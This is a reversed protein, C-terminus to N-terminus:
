ITIVNEFSMDIDTNPMWIKPIIIKKDDTDNLYSAWWSFSSNCIIGGKCLTMFYFTEIEDLDELFMFKVENKFKEFVQYTKCYEIDNSFVYFKNIKLDNTSLFKQIAKTYYSNYDIEYLKNGVYDGRRIHIFFFKNIDKYKEKISERINENLFVERLEEKIVNFYKLNQFYGDLFVDKLKPPPLIIKKYSDNFNKDPKILDYNFDFKNISLKNFKNFVSSLIKKINSHPYINKENKNDMFILIPLSNNIKCYNLGAAVQFLQNGLGGHLKIFTYKGEHTKEDETNEINTIWKLNKDNSYTIYMIPYIHSNKFSNGVMIDEFFYNFDKKNFYLIAKKSLYYCPGTCYFCPPVLIPRKNNNNTCKAIHHTSLRPKNIVSIYGCYNILNNGKIFTIMQIIANKNPFIDDDMKIVGYLNPFIELITGFLKHTKLFLNDYDDKCKLYMFENDIKYEIGLNEDGNLIFIKLDESYIESILNYLLLAKKQNKKCSYIILIFGKFNINPYDTM